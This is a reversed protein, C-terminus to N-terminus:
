IKKNELLHKATYGLAGIGVATVIAFIGNSHTRNKDERNDNYQRQNEKEEKMSNMVDKRQKHLMSKEDSDICDKIEQNIAKLTETLSSLYTFSSERDAKTIEESIKGTKLVEKGLDALIKAADASSEFIDNGLISQDKIEKNKGMTDGWNINIEEKTFSIRFTYVELIWRM